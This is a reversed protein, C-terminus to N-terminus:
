ALVSAAYRGMLGLLLLLLLIRVCVREREEAPRHDHLEGRGTTDKMGDESDGLGHGRGVFGM